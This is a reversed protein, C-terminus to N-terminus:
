HQRIRSEILQIVPDLSRHPMPTEGSIIFDAYQKSPGIFRAYMPRVSTFYQVIVSRLTRSRESIDRRLRRLFRTTESASVFVKVDCIERLSPVCLVFNGELLVIPRPQVNVHYPLRTHTAFDYVPSAIAGLEKLKLIHATL